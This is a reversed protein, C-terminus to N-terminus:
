VILELGYNQSGITNKLNLLSRRESFVSISLLYAPESFSAPYEQFYRHAERKKVETFHVVNTTLQVLVVRVM